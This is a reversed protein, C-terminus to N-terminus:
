VTKIKSSNLFTIIEISILSSNCNIHKFIFILCCKNLTKNKACKLFNIKFFKVSNGRQNGILVLQINKFTFETFQDPMYYWNVTIADTQM